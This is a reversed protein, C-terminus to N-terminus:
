ATLSEALRDFLADPADEPLLHSYRDSTMAFSSHGALVQVKKMNMGALVWTSIAFHRLSHWGLRGVGAQKLLPNWTRRLFNTHRTFSGRSDPFVYADDPRYADSAPSGRRAALEAALSSGIPVHRRGAKSKTSERVDGYIDVTRCVTVRREVLDVDGWRLAWQESARLGSAAAFRIRLSTEADAAALIAALVSRSPPTVKGDGQDAPADISIGRAPNTAIWDRDAAHRLARSLSGITRRITVVGVEDKQMADHLEVVAGKTLDALLRAGLKPRVYNELQAITNRLYSTAVRQGRDNRVKLKEVYSDIADSVTKQDAAARYTGGRVQVQIDTLRAEAERKKAFQQKKRTGDRETWALV